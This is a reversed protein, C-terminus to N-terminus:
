PPAYLLRGYGPLVTVSSGACTRYGLAMTFLPTGASSVAVSPREPAWSAEGRVNTGRDGEVRTLGDRNLAEVQAANRTILAVDHGAGALKGGIASGLSGAGLIAARM